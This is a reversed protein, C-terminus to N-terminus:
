CPVPSGHRSTAALSRPFNIRFLSLPHVKRRGVTLLGDTVSASITEPRSMQGPTSLFCAEPALKVNRVLVDENVTLDIIPGGYEGFGDGSDEDNYCPVPSPSVPPCSFIRRRM